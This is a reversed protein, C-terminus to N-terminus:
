KGPLHELSTNKNDEAVKMPMQQWKILKLAFQKQKINGLVLFLHMFKCLICITCLFHIFLPMPRNKSSKLGRFNEKVGDVFKINIDYSM